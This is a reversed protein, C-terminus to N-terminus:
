RPRPIRGFISNPATLPSRPNFTPVCLLFPNSSFPFSMCQHTVSKLAHPEDVQRDAKLKAEEAAERERRRAEAVAAKSGPLPRTSAGMAAQRAGGRWPVLPPPSACYFRSSSPARLHHLTCTTDTAAGEPSVRRGRSDCKRAGRARRGRLSGLVSLSSRVLVCSNRDYTHAHTRKVQQKQLSLLRARAASEPDLAKEPTTLPTLAEEAKAKALDIQERAHEQAAAAARDIKEAM